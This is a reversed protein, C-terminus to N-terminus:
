KMEREAVCMYGDWRGGKQECEKKEPLVVCNAILLKEFQDQSSPVAALIGTAHIKNGANAVGVMNDMLDVNVGDIRIRQYDRYASFPPQEEAGRIFKMEGAQTVTGEVDIFRDVHEARVDKPKLSWLGTKGCVRLHLSPMKTIGQLIEDAKSLFNKPNYLLQEALDRNYELIGDFEIAFSTEGGAVSRRLQKLIERSNLFDELSPYGEDM